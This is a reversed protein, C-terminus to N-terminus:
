DAYGIRPDHDIILDKARNMGPLVGDDFGSILDDIWGSMKWEGDM